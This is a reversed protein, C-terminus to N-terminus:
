STMDGLSDMQVGFPSAVGFKRALAGDLGDFTICALLCAAGLRPDMGTVAFMIATMGLLLSARTCAQVLAFKTRRSVSREGPLLPILGPSAAPEDARAPIAVQTVTPGIFPAPSTPAVTEFTALRRSEITSRTPADIVPASGRRGVRVLLMQ